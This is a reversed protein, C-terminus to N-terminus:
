SYYEDALREPDAGRWYRLRFWWMSVITRVVGRHEWRRSSAMLRLRPCLPAM